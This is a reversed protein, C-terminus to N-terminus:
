MQGLRGYVHGRKEVHKNKNNSQQQQRHQQLLRAEYFDHKECTTVNFRLNFALWDNPQLAAAM